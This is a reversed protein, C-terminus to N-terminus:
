GSALSMAPEDGHALSCWGESARREVPARRLVVRSGIIEVVFGRPVSSFRGTVGGDAILITRSTGPAMAANSFDLALAGGLMAHGRVRVRGSAGDSVAIRLEGAGLALSGVTLVGGEVALTGRPGVELGGRVDLSGGVIDLRALGTKEGTIELAGAHQGPADVVVTGALIRALDFRSPQFLAPGRLKGRRDLTSWNQIEAYRRSRAGSFVLAAPAPWAALENLYEELNTYGDADVDGNNDASAANTGNSSEWADPMGDADTDFGAPRATMPTAILTRWETGESTSGNFPDDAWAIIKGSGARTEAILRQEIPSRSNYRAGAYDLVRDFAARPADTVGVYAPQTFASQQIASSSFDSNTLAVGDDADADRNTDKLNNSQFVKTNTSDSGNFITTGGSAQVINTTDGGSADDGGNGSRYFNGVFNNQSPQSSAGTGATGIWNYFVNNRFDNFAGVGAVTLADAETGVRPLRGKLHAYLNHHVGVTANSGAQLLSGLAHGTYRVGSSEADAQPYNQGQAIISYQITIATAEENMSITEDTAFVTTVHDIMVRQGSIDIADFVYSDPFDGAVPDMEPEDFNRNGYGPAILVNRLIINTEGPRLSGGAIVVPGPASQGAVTVNAPLNLRSTTDWGNGNSDWGSVATRGLRFVGSVDFVITRPDSLNSLGYRLTGPRMDSSDTDLLTVHYVDGGRGGSIRGAPGDAGPFAPLPCDGTTCLNSAGASAGASGGSGAVGGTGGAGGAGSMGAAGSAAASGAAGSEGGVGAMGSGGVGAAGASGALGGAGSAGSSGSAGSVSGGAGSAGSAAGASGAVGGGGATGASTGAGGGTAPGAGGVGGAGGQGSTGVAATGAAGDPDSELSCGLAGIAVGSLGLSFAIQITRMRLPGKTLVLVPEHLQPLAEFGTLNSIAATPWGIM